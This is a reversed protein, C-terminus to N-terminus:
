LAMKGFIKSRFRGKTSGQKSNKLPALL